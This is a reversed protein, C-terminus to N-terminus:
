KRRKTFKNQLGISRSPLFKREVSGELGPFPVGDHRGRAHDDKLWSPKAFPPALLWGAEDDARRPLSMKGVTRWGTYRTPM